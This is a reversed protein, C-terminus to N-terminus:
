QSARWKSYLSLIQQWYASGDTLRLAVQFQEHAVRRSFDPDDLCRHCLDSYEAVSWATSEPVSLSPLDLLTAQPRGFSQRDTRLGFHVVPIGMAYAEFRSSAGGIPWPNPALRAKRLLRMLKQWGSDGVDGSESRMASFGGEYQVRSGVGHRKASSSIMSLAAPEEHGMFVFRLDDREHMVNLFCELFDSSALKYLSGHFVALAEREHWGPPQRSLDLDRPDFMIWGSHVKLGKVNRGTVGCFLSGGVPFYDAEAHCNIQFSAKPHHLADGGTCINVICPTDITDLLDYADRKAKLNVLLDLEDGNVATAVDRVYCAAEGAERARVALYRKALPQLFDATQGRYELDYVFLEATAPFAEFLQKPFSLLGSFAGICGVRLPRGGLARVSRSAVQGRAVLGRQMSWYFASTHVCVWGRVGRPWGSWVWKLGFRDVIGLARPRGIIRSALRLAGVALRATWNAELLRYLVRVIMMPLRTKAGEFLSLSM